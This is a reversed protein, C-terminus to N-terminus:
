TDVVCFYNGTVKQIKIPKVTKQFIEAADGYDGVPDATGDEDLLESISFLLTLKM